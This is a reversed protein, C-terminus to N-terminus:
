SDELKQELFNDSVKYEITAKPFDEMYLVASDWAFTGEHESLLTYPIFRSIEIAEKIVDGYTDVGDWPIVSDIDFRVSFSGSTEEPGCKLEYADPITSNNGIVQFDWICPEGSLYSVLYFVRDKRDHPWNKVSYDYTLIVSHDKEKDPSITVKSVDWLIEHRRGWYAYHALYKVPPILIAMVLLAVLIWKWKKM